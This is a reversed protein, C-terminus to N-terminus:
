KLGGVEPIITVGCYIINLIGDFTKSYFSHKVYHFIGMNKYNLNVSLYFHATFCTKISMQGTALKAIDWELGSLIRLFVTLMFFIYTYSASIAWM